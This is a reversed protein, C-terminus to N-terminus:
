PIKIRNHFEQKKVFSFLFKMDVGVDDDDTLNKFNENAECESQYNVMCPAKLIDM